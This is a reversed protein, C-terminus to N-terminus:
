PVPLAAAALLTTPIDEIHEKRLVAVDLAGGMRDLASGDVASWLVFRQRPERARVATIVDLGSMGPMMADCLVVDPRLALIAEVASPGDGAEGVVRLERSLTEAVRIALLRMAPDDDVVVVTTTRGAAPGAGGDRRLEAGAARAPERRLARRRKRALMAADARDVARLDVADEPTVATGVSVGLRVQGASTEYPQALAVEIRRAMGDVMAEAADARLHRCLIVFEDGGIRAVVDDRRAIARLRVGTQVLVEDGVAHGFTDNVAKFGDLDLYLLGLARDRAAPDGAAAGATQELAEVLQQRNALGTLADHLTRHRLVAAEEQARRAAVVDATVDDLTLVVAAPGGEAGVLRTSVDLWTVAGDPHRAGMRLDTVEVGRLGLSSPLRDVDLPAGDRGLWVVADGGPPLGAAAGTAMRLLRDAAANQRVVRRLRDVVVVGQHVADLVATLHAERDLVQRRARSMTRGQAHVATILAAIAVMGAQVHLGHDLPVQGGAAAVAAGTGAVATMAGIQLASAHTALVPAVPLLALLLPPLVDAVAGLALAATVGGGLAAAWARVSRDRHWRPAGLGLLLTGLTGLAAMEGLVVRGASPWLAGAALLDRGAAVATTGAAALLATAAMAAYLRAVAALDGGGWRARRMWVAAAAAGSTSVAAVAAATAPHLPAPPAAAALAVAVALVVPAARLGLVATAAFAVVTPGPSLQLGDQILEGRLGHALVVLATVAPVWARPGPLVRLSATAV